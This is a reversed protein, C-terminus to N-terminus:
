DETLFGYDEDSSLSIVFPLVNFYKLENQDFTAKKLVVKHIDFASLLVSAVEFNSTENLIKILDELNDYPFKDDDGILNGNVTISYDSKQIYEKVTGTRNLLKTEAIINTHTINIRVDIFEVETQGDSTRLILNNNYKSGPTRLRDYYDISSLDPVPPMVAKWIARRASAVGATTGIQAALAAAGIGLYTLKKTHPSSVRIVIGSM